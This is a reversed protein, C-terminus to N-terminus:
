QSRPPANEVVVEAHCVFHICGRARAVNAKHPAEVGRTLQVPVAGLTQYQVEMEIQFNRLFDGCRGRGRGSGFGSQKRMDRVASGSKQSCRTRREISLAMRFSSRERSNCCRASRRRGPPTSEGTRAKRATPPSGGNM